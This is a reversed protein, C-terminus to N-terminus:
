PAAAATAALTIGPVLPVAAKAAIAKAAIKDGMLAIVEASPGILKLGAKELAAAFETNEALFGYGPHIAEAGTHKAADIIRDIALYSEKSEAGGIAVSEDASRRHLAHEDATSFVGVSRVGLRRCTRAIRCAIEGRNAILIKKFM